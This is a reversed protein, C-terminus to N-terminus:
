YLTRICGGVHQLLRHAVLRFQVSYFLNIVQRWILLFLYVDTSRKECVLDLGYFHQLTVVGLDLARTVNLFRAPFPFCAGGGLNRQCLFM